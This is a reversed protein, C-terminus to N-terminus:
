IKVRCQVPFSVDTSWHYSGQCIHKLTKQFVLVCDKNGWKATNGLGHLRETSAQKRAIFVWSIHSLISVDLMITFCINHLMDKGLEMFLLLTKFFFVRLQSSQQIEYSKTLVSLSCHKYLQVDKPHSWQKYQWRM